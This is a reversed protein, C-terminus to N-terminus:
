QFPDHRQVLLLHRSRMGTSAQRRMFGISLKERAALSYCSKTAAKRGHLRCLTLWCLRGTVWNYRPSTLLEQWAAEVAPREPLPADAPNLNAYLALLADLDHPALAGIHM